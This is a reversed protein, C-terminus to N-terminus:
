LNVQDKWGQRDLPLVQTGEMKKKIMEEIKLLDYLTVLKRM